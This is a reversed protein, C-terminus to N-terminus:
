DKVEAVEYHLQPALENCLTAVDPLNSYVGQVVLGSRYVQAQAVVLEFRSSRLIIAEVLRAVELRHRAVEQDLRLSRNRYGCPM